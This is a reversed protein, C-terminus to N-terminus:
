NFVFYSLLKATEEFVFGVRVALIHSYICMRSTSLIPFRVYRLPKNLLM